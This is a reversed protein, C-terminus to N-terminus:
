LGKFQPTATIAITTDYHQGRQNHNLTFERYMHERSMLKSQITFIGRKNAMNWSAVRACIDGKEVAEGGEM